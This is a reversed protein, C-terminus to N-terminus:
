LDKTVEVRNYFECKRCDGLKQASVCQMRTEAFTGAVSWCIRGFNPYAPCSRGADAAKEMGCKM